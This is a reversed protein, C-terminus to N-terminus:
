LLNEQYYDATVVDPPSLASEPPVALIVTDWATGGGSAAITYDDDYLQRVGNLYVQIQYQTDQLFTGSPITFTTNVGDVDGILEVNANLVVAQQEWGVQCGLTIGSAYLFNLQNTNFQLLDVDSQLITIEKSLLSNLLDGKLLATRIEGEAIGPILMLDRTSGPYIPYNFIQVMKPPSSINKVIFTTYGDQPQFPAFSNDGM